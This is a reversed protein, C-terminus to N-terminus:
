KKMLVAEGKDGKLKLSKGDSTVEAKCTGLIVVDILLDKDKKQVTRGASKAAANRAEYTLDYTGDGKVTLTLTGGKFEKAVWTGVLPKVDDPTAKEEAPAQAAAVLLVALLFAAKRM